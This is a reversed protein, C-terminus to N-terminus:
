FKYYLGVEGTGGHDSFNDKFAYGAMINLGIRKLITFEVGAGLGNFLYLGTNGFSDNTQLHNGQYLYFSTVEEETLTYLFTLGASIAKYISIFNVQGGFRKPVYRFSVGIGTTLGAGLGISYKKKGNRSSSENKAQNSVSHDNQSKRRNNNDLITYNIGFQAAWLSNGKNKDIYGNNRDLSFYLWSVDLGIRWKKSIAYKIGSKTKIGLLNGDIYKTYSSSNNNVNIRGYGLMPGVNLDVEVDNLKMSYGVLYSISGTKGAFGSFGIQNLRMYDYRFLDFGITQKFEQNLFPTKYIVEGTASIGNFRPLLSGASIGAELKSSKTSDSQAFLVNASLLLILTFYFYTKM